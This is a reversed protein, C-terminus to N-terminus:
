VVDGLVEEQTALYCRSIAMIEDLMGLDHLDSYLTATKSATTDQTSWEYEVNGVKKRKLLGSTATMNDHCDESNVDKNLKNLIYCIIPLLGAPLADYGANYELTVTFDYECSCCNDEAKILDYFVQKSIYLKDRGEDFGQMLEPIDLEKRVFKGNIMGTIRASVMFPTPHPAYELPIIVFAEDCLKCLCECHEVRVPYTQIRTQTLFLDEPHDDWCTISSIIRLTQWILNWYAAKDSVFRGIEMGINDPNINCFASILTMLENMKENDANFVRSLPDIHEAQVVTSTM